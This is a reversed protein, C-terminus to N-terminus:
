RDECYEQTQEPGPHLAHISSAVELIRGSVSLVDLEWFDYGADELADCAREVEDDTAGSIDEVDPSGPSCAIGVVLAGALLLGAIKLM